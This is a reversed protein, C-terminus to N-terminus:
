AILRKEIIVQSLVNITFLRVASLRSAKIASHPEALNQISVIPCTMWTKRDFSM